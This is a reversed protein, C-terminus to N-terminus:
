EFGDILREVQERTLGPHNKMIYNILDTPDDTVTPLAEPTSHEPRVEPTGVDNDIPLPGARGSILTFFPSDEDMLSTKNKPM